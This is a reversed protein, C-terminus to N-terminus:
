STGGSTSFVDDLDVEIDTAPDTVTGSSYTTSEMDPTFVTITRLPPQVIWCSEVGHEMLFRAKDVLDQIGQTPSSIEIALLPPETVQTEDRTFDIELDRYVSVDPTLDRGELRLTLESLAQLRPRYNALQILLNTQAVSHLKSPTPKGREREYDSITQQTEM